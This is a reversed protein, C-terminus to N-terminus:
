APRSNAVARVPRLHTEVIRALQSPEIPKEVYDFAGLQMADLYCHMDPCRTVVLVPLRRDIAIARELVRRGEFQRSGQCVLVFDFRDRELRQVGDESRSCVAVDYGRERLAQADSNLDSCDDDVVLVKPAVWSNQGLSRTRLESNM